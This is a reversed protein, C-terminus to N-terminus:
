PRAEWEGFDLEDEVSAPEPLPARFFAYDKPWAFRNAGRTRVALARGEGPQIRGELTRPM